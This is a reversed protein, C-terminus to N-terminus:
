SPAREALAFEVHRTRGQRTLQWGGAELELIPIKEAELYVLTHPKLWGARLQATIEAVLGQRFPPDVFVIDHPVPPNTALWTRADACLITAADAALTDRHAVLTQVVVPDADLLTAAAAGRSLSEFGLAGTGAFLDLCTAGSIYPGLWNFLTERVRDPTPRLAPVPAVALKRGRWLGGIIRIRGDDRAPGGTRPGREGHSRAAM